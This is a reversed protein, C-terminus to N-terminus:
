TAIMKKLGWKVSLIQPNMEEIEKERQAVRLSSGSSKSNDGGRKV